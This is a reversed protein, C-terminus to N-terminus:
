TGRQSLYIRYRLAPGSGFQIPKTFTEFLVGGNREIVKQSAFNTPDTTVEVFPMGLAVAEPLIQRLAETAYGLGQKWPVVAYGVHGLCHPPLETTGPQWRFSIRGCFEGDWLWRQFGPIRPVSSGDPLTISAGRAERHDNRALFLSSDDEIARLEEQAAAAGGTISWGRQLAATYSALHEPAPSVLKMHQAM